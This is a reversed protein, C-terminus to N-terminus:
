WLKTNNRENKNFEKIRNYAKNPSITIPELVKKSDQEKIEELELAIKQYLDSLAYTDYYNKAIYTHSQKLEILTKATYQEVNQTFQLPAYTCKVFLNFYWKCSICNYITNIRNRVEIPLSGLRQDTIVLYGGKTFQRFDRMLLNLYDLVKDNNWDYQSAVSGFEDVIIISGERVRKNLTLIDITLLKSKIKKHKRKFEIPINSYILPPLKRYDKEKKWKKYNEKYKKVAYITAQYTKGSGLGGTFMIVSENTPTIRKSKKLLFFILILLVLISAIIIRIM